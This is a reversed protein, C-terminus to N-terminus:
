RPATYEIDFYEHCHGEMEVLKKNTTKYSDFLLRCEEFPITKDNKYCFQVVKGEVKKAYKATNFWDKIFPSVLFSYRRKCLSKLSSFSNVVILKKCGPHKSALYVAPSGGLSHGWIIIQDEKFGKDLLWKYAIDATEYVNDESPNGESLGYGPYSPALVHYQECFSQFFHPLRGSNGHLYLLVETSTPHPLWWLDINEGHSTRVFHQEHPVTLTRSYSREKRFLMMKLLFTLAGRLIFWLIMAFLAIALAIYILKTFLLEIAFM